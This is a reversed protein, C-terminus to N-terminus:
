RNRELAVVSGRRGRQPAERWPDRRGTTADRHMRFMVVLSAVNLVLAVAVTM